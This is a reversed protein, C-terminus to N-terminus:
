RDVTGSSSSGGETERDWVAFDAALRRTVLNAAPLSYHGYNYFGRPDYFQPFRKPDRYDILSPLGHHSEAGYSEVDGFFHPPFIVFLLRVDAREAAEVLRAYSETLLVPPPTQPTWRM